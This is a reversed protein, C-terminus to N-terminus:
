EVKAMLHTVTETAGGAGAMATYVELMPGVCVRGCGPLVETTFKMWAAPLGAYDGM